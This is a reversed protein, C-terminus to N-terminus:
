SKKGAPPQSDLFRWFGQLFPHPLYGKLWPQALRLRIRHVHAKMPMYATLLREAEQILALREPGDAMSQSRQVLRDYEPLNFRSLNDEGKAPGYATALLSDADPMDATWSLMWVMLRGARAAKMNDPWNASKFDVQVHLAAMHKRWLENFARSNSDPQTHYELRLPSGDPLERWGDGDRDIYGYMDLLARAKALNYESMETKIQPQYGFTNPTIISQAPIAQRRRVSRVEEENDYGLSIARRLAVKEPAYGGVVPDEMNFYSFIVDSLLNRHLSMGRKALHPAMQGGPAALAAYESPVALFDFDGGLYALWRPQNETVISVEVRDVLPLRRGKLERAVAQAAADDPAPSEDFYAERFGPNRELVLRSARRWDKLVFPGTGVPHEGISDGYAEVVERAVALSMVQALRHAFRPSPRGLKIILTYRDPTQLGEVPADYDFPKGSKVSRERLGALGLIQESELNAFHPSRLRPDFHRKLAFAYDAAVLERKEGPKLGKFAPDAAFHIGPKIHLTFQKFDASVEPLATATLPKLKVPRALYDYVLPSEFINSVIEGSYEDSVQAPDLSTEAIQFAMRLVHASASAPKPEPAALAASCWLLCAALALAPRLPSPHRRRWMM